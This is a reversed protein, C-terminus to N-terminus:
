NELQALYNKLESDLSIKFEQWQNNLDLFGLLYAQLFLRNLPPVKIRKFKYIRDGVVPHGISKLHVRIQHSRGTLTKVKLLSFKGLKKSIQYRTEAKKTKKGGKVTIKSSKPSRGLSYSIIGQNEQPTGHILVLYEKKIKRKQFQNKLHQFMKQNRPVVMIGSAERDLRHVLGPRQPDEGIKKIEPYNRVLWSVLSSELSNPKPQTLLGAPKKLVLYDKTESIVQPILKVESESKDSPKQELALITIQDGKKLIQRPKTKQNNILIQSQNILAQIKARSLPKLHEVLFKDLRQDQSKVSIKLKPSPSSM